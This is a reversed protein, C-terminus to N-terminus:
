YQENQNPVLMIEIQNSYQQKEHHKQLFQKELQQYQGSIQKQM